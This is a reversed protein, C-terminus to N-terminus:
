EDGERRNQAHRIAMAAMLVAFLAAAALNMCHVTLRGNEIIGSEPGRLSVWMSALNAACVGAFLVMTRGYSDRLSIYADKMVCVVSFVGASLCIGLFCGTMVDCWPPLLITSMGYLVNYILLTFFGAKFALARAQQQREDYNRGSAGGSKGRLLGILIFVFVLTIVLGAAIEWVARNMQEAERKM